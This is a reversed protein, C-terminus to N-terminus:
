NMMEVTCLPLSALIYFWKYLLLTFLEGQSLHKSTVNNQVQIFAQIQFNTFPKESVNGWDGGGKEGGKGRKKKKTHKEYSMDM